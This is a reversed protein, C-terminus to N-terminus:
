TIWAYHILSFYFIHVTTSRRVEMKAEKNAAKINVPIMLVTVGKFVARILKFQSYLHPSIEVCAFVFVRAKQLNWYNLFLM